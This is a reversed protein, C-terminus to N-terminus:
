VLASMQEELMTEIKSLGEELAEFKTHTTVTTSTASTTTQTTSVTTQLILGNFTAHANPM